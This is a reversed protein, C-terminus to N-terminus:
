KRWEGIIKGYYELLKNVVKEPTLELVREFAKEGIALRESEPLALVKEMSRLLEAADGPQCLFGSKGEELLQEFSTGNTGIVVKKHAMAELCVNSFNEVLSPLVVAYAGDVIPYLMEHAMKGFHIIREAYKGACMKVQDVMSGGDFGLDKGILVFYLEPNKEMLAEITDALTEIGKHRGISGWFLLYKKGSLEKEFISRDLKETEFLFPTEIIEVSKGTM